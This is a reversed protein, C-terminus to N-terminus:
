RHALRRLAPGLLKVADDMANVSAVSTVLRHRQGRSTVHWIERGGSVTKGTVADVPRKSVVSRAVTDGTKRSMTILRERYVDIDM